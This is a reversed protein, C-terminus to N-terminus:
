FRILLFLAGALVSLTAVKLGFGLYRRFNLPYGRELALGQVVVNASAGILTANGGLAAGMALATWLAAAQDPQTAVVRLLVPILAAVLPVNDLLASLGASGLFLALPLTSGTGWHGLWSALRGVLGTSELAGVIIFVGIFFGLTGYDIAHRWRDPTEGLYLMGLVAGGAAIAGVPIHWASQFIFGVFMAALIVLLGSLKEPHRVSLIGQSRGAASSHGPKLPKLQVLWPINIGVLLLIVLSPPGLLVLFRDFPIHAATGIMMNPPDGILTAMGGLNSAVVELMLYPVPEQDLDEAAQILAPSLLLVTTVNDLFASVVATSIFFIGALRWPNEHVHAKLWRSLIVFLGAEGLLAVMIMMGALLGITNWDILSMAQTLPVVGAVVLAGALGLAVWARHFWDGLLLVYLAVLAALAVWEALSM